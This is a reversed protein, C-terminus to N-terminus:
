GGHADGALVGFVTDPWVEISDKMAHMFDDAGLGVILFVLGVHIPLNIILINLQPMARGLVGTAINQVFIAVTVPAAIQFAVQWVHGGLRTMELFVDPSPLGGGVPLLVFTEGIGRILDHHGDIALFILLAFSELALGIAPSSVGTAPDIAQAAGLGGQVALLEGLMMMASFVLMAGIGVALGFLLEVAVAAFLNALDWQGAALRGGGVPAIVWTVMLAAVIRVRAGVAPHSFLPGVWMMALVRVSGLLAFLVPMLALEVTV